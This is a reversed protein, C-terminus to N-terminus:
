THALAVISARTLPIIALITCPTANHYASCLHDRTGDAFRLLESRQASSSAWFGSTNKHNPPSTFNTSFELPWRPQPVGSAANSGVRGLLLSPVGGRGGRAAALVSAMAVDMSTKSVVMGTSSKACTAYEGGWVTRPVDVYRGLLEQLRAAARQLSSAPQFARATATNQVPGVHATLIRSSYLRSVSSHAM